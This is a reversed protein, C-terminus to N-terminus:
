YSVHAVLGGDDREVLVMRTMCPMCYVKDGPRFERNSRIVVKCVPCIV